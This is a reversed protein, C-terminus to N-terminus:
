HSYTLFSPYVFIVIFRITDKESHILCPDPFETGLARRPEALIHNNITLLLTQIYLFHNIM